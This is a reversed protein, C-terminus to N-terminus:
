CRQWARATNQAIASLTRRLPVDLIVLASGSLADPACALRCCILTAISSPLRPVATLTRPYTRGMILRLGMGLFCGTPLGSDASLSETAQFGLVSEPLVQAARLLFRRGIYLYLFVFISAIKVWNAYRNRYRGERKRARPSVM